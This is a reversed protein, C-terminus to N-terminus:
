GYITDHITIKYTVDKNMESDSIYTVDLYHKAKTYASNKDKAKIIRTIKEDDLKVRTIIMDSLYYM